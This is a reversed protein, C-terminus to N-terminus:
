FERALLIKFSNTFHFRCYDLRLPCALEQGMLTRNRNVEGYLAHPSCPNAIKLPLSRFSYRISEQQHYRYQIIAAKFATHSIPKLPFSIYLNIPNIIFLPRHHTRIICITIAKQSLIRNLKYFVSSAIYQKRTSYATGSIPYHIRRDTRFFLGQDEYSSPKTRYSADQLFRDMKALIGRKFPVRELHLNTITRISLQSATNVETFAFLVFALFTSSVLQKPYFFCVATVSLSCWPCVMAISVARLRLWFPRIRLYFCIPTKENTAYFRALFRSSILYIAVTAIYIVCRHLENAAFGAWNSTITVVFKNPSIKDSSPATIEPETPKAMVM